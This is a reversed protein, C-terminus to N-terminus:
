EGDGFLDKADQEMQKQHDVSNKLGFEQYSENTGYDRTRIVTPMPLADGFILAQQRSDLRSLVRRLERAGSAGALVADVDRENDLRYTMRTGLQSLVEEDIGSPRQDVILLSVKYKRMERAINGFITQSAIAPTLFRHAEEITIVLPRPEKSQDGMSEEVRRVYQEHIRRTLLNTVFIYALYDDYYKGFELVVHIGRNLYELIRTVADEPATETVFSLRKLRELKRHLSGLTSPFENLSKALENLEDRPDISLFERLWNSQGYFQALRYTAEVALHSLDLTEALIRIDDPTIEAYGIKVEADPSVKRRVFSDRDLSFLAVRNPFLLKLGKVPNGKENTGQYGYDNHMDFVLNTAVGKQLIGALLIRTLFTKGTGSRGFVGTSRQVLRELDICLRSDELGLPSGIWLHKEDEKGYILNIDSDSAPFASAFHSPITLAPEPGHLISNAKNTISLHPSFKIVTFAGTGSIIKTIFPDDIDPPSSRLSQDSAELVMDSIIGFFRSNKGQVTVLSGVIVDEIEFSSNLKIDLGNAWSGGIIIGLRDISM